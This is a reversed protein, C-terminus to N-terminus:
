QNIKVIYILKQKIKNITYSVLESKMLILSLGYIIAGTFFGFTLNLLPTKINFPLLILIFFMIVGSIYYKLTEKNFFFSFNFYKRAFFAQLLVCIIGSVLLAISAGIHAYHPILILNLIFNCIASIGMSIAFEKENRNPFLYFSVLVNSMIDIVISFSLIKLSLISSGFQPGSLFYVIDKTYLFVGLCIPISFIFLSYNMVKVLRNYESINNKKNYEIRPIIASIFSGFLPAIMRTVKAAAIFYGVSENGSINGLMTINLQVSIIGAISTAFVILILRIHRNINLDEIKIKITFKRLYIINFLNAVSNLGVMLGAYKIYDTEKKIYIYILTLIIIKVIFSRITIYRQNEIGQYFWEYSFVSFFINPAIVLYLLYQAKFLPFYYILLFYLIYSISCTVLMIISFECITESLKKVDDRCRAVERFGYAPIGLTSFLIFYSTISNAYEVQGLYEPGMIRSIYQFTILPFVANLLLRISNLLMNERISNRVIAKM